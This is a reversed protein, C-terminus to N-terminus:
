KGAVPGFESPPARHRTATEYISAVKIITPEEGIGAWFSIGIPMPAAMSTKVTNNAVNIYSDKKENLAYGPEYIETNFGAPVTIEPIGLDASTPFRGVPRNNVTPQTAYGIKAAPITTTPNVLVDLKNQLM